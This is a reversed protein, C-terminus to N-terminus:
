CDDFRQAEWATPHGDVDSRLESMRRGSCRRCGGHRLATQIMTRQADLRRREVAHQRFRQQYLRTAWAEGLLLGLCLLLIAAAALVAVTNSSPPIM